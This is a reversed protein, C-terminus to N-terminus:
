LGLKKAAKLRMHKGARIYKRPMPGKTAVAITAEIPLPAANWL